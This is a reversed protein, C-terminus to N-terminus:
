YCKPYEDWNLVSSTWSYNWFLTGWNFQCNIYKTWAWPPQPNFYNLSYDWWKINFVVNNFEANPSHKSFSVESSHNEITIIDREVTVNCLKINKWHNILPSDRGLKKRVLIVWDRSEWIITINEMWAKYLVKLVSVSRHYKNLEDYTWNLLVVKSGNPVPDLTKFPRARTWPNTDDWDPGIYYDWFPGPDKIDIIWSYKNEVNYDWVAYEKDNELMAVLKYQDKSGKKVFYRYPKKTKPDLILQMKWLKKIVWTGLVWEHWWSWMTTWNYVVWAPIPDPLPYEWTRWQEVELVSKIKALDWIRVSDRAQKPYNKYSVYSITALIIVVVIVVILEVLTFAFINKRKM